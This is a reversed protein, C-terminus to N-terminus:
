PSRARRWPNFVPVDFRRFDRLNRTVVTLGHREATAALLLDVAPPNHWQRRLRALKRGWIAATEGDVPLTRDAFAQRVQELWAVYRGQRAGEPMLAIGYEVEGLTMASVFKAEDPVAALWEIVARDPPETVFNSVVVTDLLYGSL